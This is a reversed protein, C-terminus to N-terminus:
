GRRPALEREFQVFARGDSSRRFHHTERFGLGVVLARARANVAAVTARAREASGRSRAEALLAWLAPAGYGCGVLDPRLGLGLDLVASAREYAGGAVQAERGFSGYGLLVGDLSVVAVHDPARLEFAGPGPDYIALEGAYAWRS